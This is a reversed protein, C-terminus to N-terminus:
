AGLVKTHVIISGTGSASTYDARIYEYCLLTAPIAYVGAGAIAVTASPIPSWNVPTPTNTPNVIDNSFQLILTGTVTGTVIAQASAYLMSTSDITAGHQSAGTSSLDTYVSQKM